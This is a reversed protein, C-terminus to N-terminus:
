PKAIQRDTRLKRQHSWYLLLVGFFLMPLSLIQGLSLTGGFLLGIHADPSRFNETVLRLIGYAILFIGSVQGVVQPKRRAILMIVLLLVGEVFAQYLSSPHRLQMEYAGFTTCEQNLAYVAECPYRFGWPVETVRGPLEGNIFNGIRGLGLGIPIVPAVLDSVEFFDYKFKRAYLGCVLLVGLLGGHFSMGGEWVRFLYLPDSILSGPQYFLVYGIRGGLVVGLAVYFVFDSLMAPTFGARPAHRTLVAWGLIFSLLYFTGYWQISLPGINFIVPDIQPYLM